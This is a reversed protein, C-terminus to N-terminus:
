LTYSALPINFETNSAFYANEAGRYTADAAVMGQWTGTIPATYNVGLHRRDRRSRRLRRGGNAGAVLAARDTHRCHRRVRWIAPQCGRVQRDSATWNNYEHM